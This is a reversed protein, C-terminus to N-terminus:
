QLSPPTTVSKADPSLAPGHSPPLTTKGLSQDNLLFLTLALGAVIFSIVAMRIWYATRNIPLVAEDAPPATRADRGVPNFKLSGGLFEQSQKRDAMIVKPYGSIGQITGFHRFCNRCELTTYYSSARIPLFARSKAHVPQKPFASM